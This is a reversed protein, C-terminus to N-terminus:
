PTPIPSPSETGSLFRRDIRQTGQDTYYQVLADRVQRPSLENRSVRQQLEGHNSRLKKLRAVEASTRGSAAWDEPTGYVADMAELFGTSSEKAIDYVTEVVALTQAGAVLDSDSHVGAAAALAKALLPNSRSADALKIRMSQILSPSPVFEKEILNNAFHDYVRQEIERGPVYMPESRSVIHMHSAFLSGTPSVFDDGFRVGIKNLNEVTRGGGPGEAIPFFEARPLSTAQACLLPLGACYTKIKQGRLPKGALQAVRSTDFTMDYELDNGIVSAAADAMARAIAPDEHRLFAYYLPVDLVSDINTAAIRKAKETVEVAVMRQMGSSDRELAIVSVHTFLGPALDTFLNYPSSNRMLLWDGPQIQHKGIQFSQADVGNKRRQELWKLLAARRESLDRSLARADLPKLLSELEAATIAPRPLRPDGGPRPDQPLGLQRITEAACITLEPTVGRSKIFQVVIPLADYQGSWNIMALLKIKTQPSAPQARNPTNAPPDLLAWAMISAGIGSRSVILQDILDDREAPRAALRFAAENIAGALEYHARGSLDILRSTLQLYSRAANARDSAPELTAFEVRQSLVSELVRDLGGKGDSLRDIRTLVQAVSGGSASESSLAADVASVDALVPALSDAAYEGATKPRRQELQQIARDLPSPEDRIVFAASASVKWASLALLIAVMAGRRVPAGHRAPDRAARFKDSSSAFAPRLDTGRLAIVTAIFM